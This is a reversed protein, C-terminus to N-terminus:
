SHIVIIKHFIDRSSPVKAVKVVDDPVRPAFTSTTTLVCLINDVGYDNIAGTICWFDLSFM